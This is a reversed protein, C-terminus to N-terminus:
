QNFSVITSYAGNTYHLRATAYCSQISNYTGLNLRIISGDRIYSTGDQFEGEQNYTFIKSIIDTGGDTTGLSVEIDTITITDTVDILMQPSQYTATDALVQQLYVDMHKIPNTQAQACLFFGIGALLSILKRM